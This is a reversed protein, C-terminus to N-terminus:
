SNPQMSAPILGPLLCVRPLMLLECILILVASIARCRTSFLQGAAPEATLTAKKSARRQQLDMSAQEERHRVADEEARCVM